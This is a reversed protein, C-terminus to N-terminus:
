LLGCKCYVCDDYWFVIDIVTYVIFSVQNYYSVMSIFIFHCTCTTYVMDENKSKRHYQIQVDLANRISM